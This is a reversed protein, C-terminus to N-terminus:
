KRAKAITVFEKSLIEMETAFFSAGRSDKHIRTLLLITAAFVKQPDYPNNLAENLRPLIEEKYKEFDSKIKDLASQKEELGYDKIAQQMQPILRDVLSIM